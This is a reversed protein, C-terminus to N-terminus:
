HLEVEGYGRECLSVLKKLWGQRHYHPPYFWTRTPKKGSSDHHRDAIEPYISLLDAVRQDGEADSVKGTGPEYHDCMCFLVHVTKGQRLRARERAQARWTLSVTILQKIKEIASM